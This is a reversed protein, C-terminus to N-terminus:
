NHGYDAGKILRCEPHIGSDIDFDKTHADEDRLMIGFKTCKHYAGCHRQGDCYERFPCERCSAVEIIRVYKSKKSM